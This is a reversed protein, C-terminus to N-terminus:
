GRRKKADSSNANNAECYYNRIRKVYVDGNIVDNLESLTESKIHSSLINLFDDEFPITVNVKSLAIEPLHLHSILGKESIFFVTYTNDEEPLQCVVGFQEFALGHSPCEIESKIRVMEGIGFLREYNCDTTGMDTTIHKLLTGDLLYNWEERQGWPDVENIPYKTISIRFEPDNKNDKTENFLHQRAKDITEFVCEEDIRVLGWDSILYERYIYIYKNSM